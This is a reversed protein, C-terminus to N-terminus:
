PEPAPPVVRRRRRRLRTPRMAPPAAAPTAVAATVPEPGDDDIRLAVALMVTTLALGIPGFFTILTLSPSLSAILWLSIGARLGDAGDRAGGALLRRMTLILTGVPPLYILIAGISRFLTTYPFLTSRPPRRIM